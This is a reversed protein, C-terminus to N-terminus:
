TERGASHARGRLRLTTYHSLTIYLGMISGFNLFFAMAEGNFDWMDMVDILFLKSGFVMTSSIHVGYLAITATLLRLAATRMRNHPALCLQGRVTQMILPWRMGLHISLILVAWHAAALHVQRATAGGEQGLFGFVTRSVLVSSLLLVLMTALLAGGFLLNLMAGAVRRHQPISGYWRRNFANHAAVLVVM